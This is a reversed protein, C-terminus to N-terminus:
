EDAQPRVLLVPTEAGRVVKDAVSGLLLRSLGGRGHTALAVLGIEHQQAVDLITRAPQGVAVETHITHGQERLERAMKDLYAHAAREQEGAESPEVVSLLWYDVDLLDGLRCAPELIREALESGDLPILMQRISPLQDKPTPTDAEAAPRILLTPIDSHRVFADAVSGLWVRSFAGHGHTTMIVLDAHMDAAHETLTPVVAGHLIECTIQLDDAAFRERISQLYAQEYQRVEADMREDVIPVGGMNWMGLSVNIIPVHVHVLSLMAGSRLALQRAAPLAHEAFRSGDLPVLISQMSM